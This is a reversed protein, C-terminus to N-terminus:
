SRIAVKGRLVQETAKALVLSLERYEELLLDSFSGRTSRFDDFRPVAFREIHQVAQTLRDAWSPRDEKHFLTQGEQKYGHHRALWYMFAKSYATRATESTLGNLYRGLHNVFAIGGYLRAYFLSRVYEDLPEHNEWLFASFLKHDDWAGEYKEEFFDDLLRTWAKILVNEKFRTISSVLGSYHTELETETKPIPRDGGPFFVGCRDALNIVFDYEYNVVYMQVGKSWGIRVLVNRAFDKVTSVDLYAAEIALEILSLGDFSDDLLDRYKVEEWPISDYEWHPRCLYSFEIERDDNLSAGVDHLNIKGLPSQLKEVHKPGFYELAQDLQKKWPLQLLDDFRASYEAKSRVVLSGELFGSGRPEM